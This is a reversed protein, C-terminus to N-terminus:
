TGKTEKKPPPQDDKDEDESDRTRKRPVRKGSARSKTTKKASSPQQLALHSKAKNKQTSVVFESTSNDPLKAIVKFQTFDHLHYVYVCCCDPSNPFEPFDVETAVTKKRKSANPLAKAGIFHIVWADTSPVGLSDAYQKTRSIHGLMSSDLEVGKNKHSYQENALIEIIVKLSPKCCSLLFDAKKRKSKQQQLVM